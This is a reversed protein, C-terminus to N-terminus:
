DDSLYAEACAEACAKTCAQDKRRDLVRCLRRGNRGKSTKTTKTTHNHSTASASNAIQSTPEGHGVGLVDIVNEGSQALSQNSLPLRLRHVSSSRM